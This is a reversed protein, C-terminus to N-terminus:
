KNPEIKLDVYWGCNFYDSQSDSKDWNGANLCAFFKKLWALPQGDFHEHYWYPNLHLTQDPKVTNSNPGARMPNCAVANYNAHFDLPSKRITMCLTSHNRVKLTWSFGAAKAGTAKLELAINKKLDQSVYAM